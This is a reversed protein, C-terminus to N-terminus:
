YFTCERRVCTASIPSNDHLLLGLEVSNANGSWVM